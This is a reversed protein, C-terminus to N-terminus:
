WEEESTELERKVIDWTDRPKLVLVNCGAEPLIQEATSGLLARKLGRRAIGNLVLLDINLDSALRALAYQPAGEVFHTYEVPVDHQKAFELLAARHEDRLNNAHDVTDLMGPDFLLEMAEATVEFAHAIHLEAGWTEALKRAHELAEADLEAPQNHARMPDVAVMIRKPKSSGQPHVLLLPAPCMRILQWDRPTLFLRRTSAIAEIDKVVLDSGLTYIRDIMARTLHKDWVTDVHVDDPRKAQKALAGEIAEVQRRRYYEIAQELMEEDLMRSRVLAKNYDFSCLDLHAQNALATQVAHELAPSGPKTPALIGLIRQYQAM